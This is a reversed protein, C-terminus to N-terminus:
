TADLPIKLFSVFNFFFHFVKEIKQEHSPALVKRIPRQPPFIPYLVSCYARFVKMM